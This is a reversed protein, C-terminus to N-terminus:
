PPSVPILLAPAAPNILSETVCMSAVFPLDFITGGRSFEPTRTLCAPDSAQVGARSSTTKRSRTPLANPRSCSRSPRHGLWSARVCRRMGSGSQWGRSLRRQKGLHQARKRLSAGQRMCGEWHRRCRGSNQPCAWTQPWGPRRACTASPRSTTGM